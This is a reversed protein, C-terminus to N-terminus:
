RISRECARGLGSQGVNASFPPPSGAPSCAPWHSRRLPRPQLHGPPLAGLAERLMEGVSMEQSSVLLRGLLPAAALPFPHALPRPWSRTGPHAKCCRLHGLLCASVCLCM